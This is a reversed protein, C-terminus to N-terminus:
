EKGGAVIKHTDSDSVKLYSRAIAVAENVAATVARSSITAGSVADIEGSDKTVAYSGGGASGKFQRLFRDEKTKAGLGPTEEMSLITVGTVTGDARIGTMVEIAGGYGNSATTVVMGILRGKDDFAKCIRGESDVPQYDAAALVKQRSEAAKRVANQAIRGATLWNTLALLLTVVTCIGTLVLTPRILASASTNKNAM